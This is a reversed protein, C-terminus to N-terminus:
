VRPRVTAFVIASEVTPLSTTVLFALQCIAVKSGISYDVVQDNISDARPENRPVDRNTQTASLSLRHCTQPCNRNQHCHTILDKATSCQSVYDEILETDNSFESMDPQIEDQALTLAEQEIRSLELGSLNCPRTYRLERRAVSLILCVSLFLRFGLPM